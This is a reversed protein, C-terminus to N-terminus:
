SCDYDMDFNCGFAQTCWVSQSRENEDSFSEQWQGYEDREGYDNWISAADPQHVLVGTPTYDDDYAEGDGALVLAWAAPIQHLSTINAAAAAKRPVLGVALKADIWYENCPKPFETVTFEM